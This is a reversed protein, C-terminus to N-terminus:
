PTDELATLLRAKTEPDCFAADAAVRAQAMLGEVGWGFTRDLAEYEATM